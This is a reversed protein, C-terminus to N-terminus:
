LCIKLVNLSLLPKTKEQPLGFSKPMSTKKNDLLEYGKAIHHKLDELHDSHSDFQSYSADM